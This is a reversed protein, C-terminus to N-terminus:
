INDWTSEMEKTTVDEAIKIYKKFHQEKKHGTINRVVMEKMGLILSNTAFTKRATHSTIAQWKPIKSSIRKGGISKSVIIESNIGALQCCEKLYSNYKQNSINPLPQHPTDSYSDLIETAYKNLPIKHDVVSTKKVNLILFGDKINAQELTILDSFRLGTFCGFCFIDRVHKLRKSDFEFNYLIMLEDLTLYIVENEVEPARFKKYDLKHNFNRATAWNLFSKLNAIIKSFYNDSTQEVSFAFDRLNEFFEQDISKFEIKRNSYDEFRSLFNFSTRYAKLTNFSKTSRNINLFQDFVSFFAKQDISLLSPDELRDLVYQKDPAIEDRLATKNIKSVLLQISELKGNIRNADKGGKSKRVREQKENWDKLNIFSNKILKRIRNNNFTLTMYIPFEGESNRKQKNPWFSLNIM